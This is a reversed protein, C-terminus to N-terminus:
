FHKHLDYGVTRNHYFFLLKIDESQYDGEANQVLPMKAHYVGLNELGKAIVEEVTGGKLRKELKLQKNKRMSRLVPLLYEVAQYVQEQPIILDESPLRMLGFLDMKRYKRQILNFGVFAVL